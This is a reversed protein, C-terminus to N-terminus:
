TPCSRAGSQYPIAASQRLQRRLVDLNQSRVPPRFPRAARRPQQLRQLKKLSDSLEDLSSERRWKGNSKRWTRGKADTHQTSQPYLRSIRELETEATALPKALTVLPPDLILQCLLLLLAFM